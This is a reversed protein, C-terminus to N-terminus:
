EPASHSRHQSGHTGLGQRVGSPGPAVSTHPKPKDASAPPNLSANAAATGPKCGLWLRGLCGVPLGPSASGSHGAASLAPNLAQFKRSGVAKPDPLSGPVLSNRPSGWGLSGVLGVTDSCRGWWLLSSGAGRRHRPARPSASPEAVRGPQAPSPLLLFGVRSSLTVTPLLFRPM